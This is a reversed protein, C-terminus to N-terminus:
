QGPKVAVKRDFFRLAPVQWSEMAERSKESLEKVRYEAEQHKLRVHQSSQGKKRSADLSSSTGIGDELKEKGTRPSVLSTQLDCVTPPLSLMLKGCDPYPCVFHSDVHDPLKSEATMDVYGGSQWPEIPGGTPIRPDYTDAFDQPNHFGVLDQPNHAGPFDQSNYAGAFNQPDYTGVFEQPDTAPKNDPLAPTFGTNLMLRPTRSSHRARKFPRRNGTYISQDFGMINDDSTVPLTFSKQATNVHGNESSIPDFASCPMLTSTRSFHRARKSPRKDGTYVSPDFGMNTDDSTAPFALSEQTAVTANVHGDEREVHASDPCPKLVSTQISHRPRKGPRRKGTYAPQEYGINVENSPSLLTLSEDTRTPDGFEVNESPFTAGLITAPADSFTVRRKPRPPPEVVPEDIRSDEPVFLSDEANDPVFLSEGANEPISHLNEANEPISFSDEANEPISLSNEANEPVFLSDEDEVPQTGDGSPVAPPGVWQTSHFTNLAEAVPHQPPRTPGQDNEIAVLLERHDRIYARSEDELAAFDDNLRKERERLDAMIKHFEESAM